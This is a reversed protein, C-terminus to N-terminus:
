TLLIQVEPVLSSYALRDRTVLQIVNGLGDRQIVYDSLRYMKMGGEAPPLFLLANGAVICQKLGELVTVRIQNSEIYRMGRQEIQMLAQEVQAKTDEKGANMYEALVEDSM